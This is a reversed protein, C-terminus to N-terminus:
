FKDLWGQLNKELSKNFIKEYIKMASDWYHYGEVFKRKLLMGSKKENKDYIFKDGEWKGPVWRQSVGEKTTYHGDNISLAYQLNTGVELTLGAKTISWINDSDGKSFSNLLLRTDVVGKRIIEDQIIDLFEFGMAELWLALEKKFEENAVKKFKKMFKDIQSTDLKFNNAM